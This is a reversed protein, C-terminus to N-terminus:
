ELQLKIFNLVQYMYCVHARGIEITKEPKDAEVPILYNIGSNIYNITTEEGKATILKYEVIYYSNIKSTTEIRIRKLNEDVPVSYFIKNSLYYKQADLIEENTDDNLITIGVDGTVVLFDIFVKTPKEEESSLDILYHNADDPTNYQCQNLFM